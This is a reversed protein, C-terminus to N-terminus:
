IDNKHKLNLFSQSKKEIKKKEKIYNHKYSIDNDKGIGLTKSDWDNYNIQM